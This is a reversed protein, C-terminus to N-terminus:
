TSAVIEMADFGGKKRKQVSCNTVAVAEGSEWAKEATARQSSLCWRCLKREMLCSHKVPSVEGICRADDSLQVGNCGVHRSQVEAKKTNDDKEVYTKSSVIKVSKKYLACCMCVASKRVRLSYSRVCLGSERKGLM